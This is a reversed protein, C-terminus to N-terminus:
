LYNITLGSLSIRGTLDIVPGATTPQGLTDIHSMNNDLNVRVQWTRPLYLEVGSLSVDLNITATENALTVDDFYIKAGGTSVRINASALAESHIYRISNSMSLDLNVHADDITETSEWDDWNGHHHNFNRHHHHWRREWFRRPNIIISLGISLLLAAGLITWPVLSAIGLPHAYLIALFALAFVAGPIMMYRLSNLLVAVLIITLVLTFVSVHYSFVGLQSLVLIIASALFFVGWFWRQRNFKKSM